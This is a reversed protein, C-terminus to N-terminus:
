GRRYGRDRAPQVAQVKASIMQPRERRMALFSMM